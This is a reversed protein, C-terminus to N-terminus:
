IAANLTTKNVIFWINRERGNPKVGTVYIPRSKLPGLFLWSSHVEARRPPSNAVHVRVYLGIKM